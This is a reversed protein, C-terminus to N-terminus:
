LRRYLSPCSNEDKEAIIYAAPTFMCSLLALKWDYVLLMVLYGTLAVGTDFVETTFKRMGEACSDVDSIAKTMLNGENEEELERKSKHVMNYYIVHKMSRNINNCFRRVYFRKIYRACQVFVTVLVYTVALLVMDRFFRKGSFIDFLCQALQGEFWPGALLGINYIIGSVTVILLVPLETKFYSFVKDPEKM